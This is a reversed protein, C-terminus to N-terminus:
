LGLKRRMRQEPTETAVMILVVLYLGIFLITPSLVYFWNWDIVKTLKLTVFVITLLNIASM